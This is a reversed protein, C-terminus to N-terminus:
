ENRGVQLRRVKVMGKGGEAALEIMQVSVAYDREMIVLWNMLREFEVPNLELQLQKDLPQLRTLYLGLQKSTTTAVAELTTSLDPQRGTRGQGQPLDAARLQMWALTGRQVDRQQEATEIGQILPRWGGWYLLAILLLIGGIGVLQRERGSLSNWWSSM